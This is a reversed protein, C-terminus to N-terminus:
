ETVTKVHTVDGNKLASFAEKLDENGIHSKLVQVLWYVVEGRGEDPIYMEIFDNVKNYQERTLMNAFMVKEELEYIANKKIETIKFMENLFDKREPAIERIKEPEMHKALEEFLARKKEGISKGKLKNLTSLLILETKEDVEWVDCKIKDYGLDRLVNLRQHGDLLLLSGDQKKNVILPPYNKEEEILKTLKKMDGKSMVNPNLEHTMIKEIPILEM